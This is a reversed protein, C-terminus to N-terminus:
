VIERWLGGTKGWLVSDIENLYLFGPTNVGPAGFGSAAGGTDVIVSSPYTYYQSLISWAKPAASLPSIGTNDVTCVYLGSGFTASDYSAARYTGSSAWTGTYALEVSSIYQTLSGSDAFSYVNVTSMRKSPTPGIYIRAYNNWIFCTKVSSLNGPQSTM